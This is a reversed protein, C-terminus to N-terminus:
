TRPNANNSKNRRAIMITEFPMYTASKYLVCWHFNSSFFICSTCQFIHYVEDSKLLYTSYVLRQPFLITTGIGRALLAIEGNTVGGTVCVPIVEEKPQFLRLHHKCYQLCPRCIMVHLRVVRCHVSQVFRPMQKWGVGMNHFKLHWRAYAEGQFRLHFIQVPFCAPTEYNRKVYNM